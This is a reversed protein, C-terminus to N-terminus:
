IHYQGRQQIERYGFLSFQVGFRQPFFTQGAATANQFAYSVPGNVSTLINIAYESLNLIGEIVSNKAIEIPEPFKFRNQLIPVGQTGYFNMQAHQKFLPEIPPPALVQESLEFACGSGMPGYGPPAGYCNVEARVDQNTKFSISCHRPLDYTWFHAFGPDFNEIANEGGRPNQTGAINPTPAFFTVGMTFAIFPYEMADSSQQNCYALNATAETRTKFFRHEQTSGFLAFSTFWGNVSTEQGYFNSCVLITDYVSWAEKVNMFQGM